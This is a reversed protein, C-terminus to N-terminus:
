VREVAFPALSGKGERLVRPVDGSLDIVTSPEVDCAGADIVLDVEHERGSKGRFRFRITSGRM